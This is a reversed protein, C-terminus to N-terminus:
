IAFHPWGLWHLLEVGGWIAAAFIAPTVSFSVPVSLSLSLSFLGLVAVLGVFLDGLKRLVWRSATALFDARQDLSVEGRTQVADRWLHIESSNDLLARLV